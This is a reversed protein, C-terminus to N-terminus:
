AIQSLSRYLRDGHEYGEHTVTVHHHVGQWERVLRTGPKIAPVGDLRIDGTRDM